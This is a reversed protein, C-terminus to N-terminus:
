FNQWKKMELLKFVEEQLIKSIEDKEEETFRDDTSLTSVIKILSPCSIIKEIQETPVTGYFSFIEMPNLEYFKSMKYMIVESPKRQGREILSLYNTTIGLKKAVFSLTYGLSNRLIKLKKGQEKYM